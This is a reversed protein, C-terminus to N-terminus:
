RPQGPPHVDAIQETVHRQVSRLLDLPTSPLGVLRKQACGDHSVSSNWRRVFQRPALEAACPYSRPQHRSM